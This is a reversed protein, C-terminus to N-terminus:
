AQKLEIVDPDPANRFHKDPRFDTVVKIINKASVEEEMETGESRVRLSFTGFDGLRV